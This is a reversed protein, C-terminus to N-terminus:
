QGTDSATATKPFVFWVRVWRVIRWGAAAAVLITVLWLLITPLYFVVSAMTSAYDALGDLGNRAAVKLQYWPRWNLGFVRAEAEAHLSIAIAVTEVQKSLAAFEAQQQEIEGRVASLKESVELTDKVTNAQKMIALYQAEEARLNHLRAEQDVYQKTVDQAEIKESEVRLGLKRIETRAEEFRAAPVRITLSGSAADQGGSMQSSMLFGGMHEALQRIREAAAAPNRVILDMSGTRVMRRDSDRRAAAKDVSQDISADRTVDSYFGAPQDLMAFEHKMPSRSLRLLNPTGLSFTLLVASCILAISMCLKNANKPSDALTFM